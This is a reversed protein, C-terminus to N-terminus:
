VHQASSAVVAADAQAAASSGVGNFFANLMVAVLEYSPHLAAIGM